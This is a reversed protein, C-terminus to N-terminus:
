TEEPGFLADLEEKTAQRDELPPLPATALVAPRPKPMMICRDIEHHLWAEYAVPDHITFAYSKGTLEYGRVGPPYWPAHAPSAPNRNEQELFQVAKTPLRLSKEWNHITARTVNCHLAADAQTFGKQQRWRKFSEGDM